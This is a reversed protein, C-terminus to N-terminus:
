DTNLSSLGFLGAYVMGIAGGLTVYFGWSVVWLGGGVFWAIGVVVLFTSLGAGIAILSAYTKHRYHTIGLGGGLATAVLPLDLLQFGREAIIPGLTPVRGGTYLPSYWPWAMWAGVIALASGLLTAGIMMSRRSEASLPSYHALLWGVPFVAWWIVTVGTGRQTSAIAILLAVITWVGSFIASTTPISVRDRVTRRTMGLYYVLM